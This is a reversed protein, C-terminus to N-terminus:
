QKAVSISVGLQQLHSPRRSIQDKPSQFFGSPGPVENNLFYPKFVMIRIAKPVFIRLLKSDPGEPFHRVNLREHRVKLQTVADSASDHHVKVLWFGCNQLSGIYAIYPKM